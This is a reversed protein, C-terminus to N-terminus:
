PRTDLDEASIQTPLKQFFEALEQLVRGRAEEVSIM